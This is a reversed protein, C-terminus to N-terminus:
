LTCPQLSARHSHIQSRTNVTYFIRGTDRTGGRAQPLRGPLLRVATRVLGIGIRYLSPVGGDPIYKTVAGGDAIYNQKLEEGMQMKKNAGGGDALKQRPFNQLPAWSGGGM